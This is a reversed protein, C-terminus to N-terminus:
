RGRGRLGRLSRDPAHSHRPSHRKGHRAVSVHHSLATATGNSDGGQQIYGMRRSIEAASALVIPGIRRAVAPGLRFAPGSVGIATVAQGEHNFIPAAVGVVDERFEGYNVSYGRERTLALDKLLAGAQTLTRATYARLSQAMVREATAPNHALLAKGTAVCYSPARTLDDMHARVAHQHSEVRDVYLLWRPDISDLIGLRVTEGCQEALAEVLPRAVDRVGLQRIALRGKQWLRLGLRFKKTEADKEVWGGEVLTAMIHHVTPKAINMKRSLDALSWEPQEVTFADLLLFVKKLSRLM